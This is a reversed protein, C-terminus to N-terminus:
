WVAELQEQIIIKADEDFDNKLVWRLIKRGEHDLAMDSTKTGVWIGENMKLNFVVDTGKDVIELPPVWRASKAAAKM